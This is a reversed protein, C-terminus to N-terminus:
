PNTKAGTNQGTKPAPPKKKATEAAKPGQAERGEQRDRTAQLEKELRFQEEESLPKASRPAPMDHVAPFQYPAAPRAPAGAPLGGVGEPLRDIMPGPTCGALALALWGAGLVATTALRGM